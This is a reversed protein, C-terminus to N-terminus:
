AGTKKDIIFKTMVNDFHQLDVLRPSARLNFSHYSFALFVHFFDFQEVLRKDLSFSNAFYDALVRNLEIKNWLVFEREGGIL